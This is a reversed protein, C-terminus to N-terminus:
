IPAHGLTGKQEKIGQKTKAESGSEWGPLRKLYSAVMGYRTTLWENRTVARLISAYIGRSTCTPM